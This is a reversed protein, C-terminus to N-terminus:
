VLDLRLVLLLDSADLQVRILAWLHGSVVPDAGDGGYTDAGSAAAAAAPLPPIYM